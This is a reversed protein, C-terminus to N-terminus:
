FTSAMKCKHFLNVLGPLPDSFFESSTARRRETVEDIYLADAQVLNRRIAHSTNLPSLDRELIEPFCEKCLVLAAGDLAQGSIDLGHLCSAAYDLRSFTKERSQHERPM